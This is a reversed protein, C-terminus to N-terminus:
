PGVRRVTSVGDVTTTVRPDGMYELMSAGSVNAVLTEEARVLGYSAGSVNATVSRSRLAGATWRSAGSVAVTLEEATGSASGLTAGSFLIGLRPTDVGSIELRAAGSAEIDRVERVTVRCVVEHIRTLSTNPAFGLFLRGGRVESVVVPLVNDDTTVELSEVGAQQLVLRLPGSVTVASFGSVPRTQSAIVGSGVLMEHTTPNVVVQDDGCALTLALAAGVGMRFMLRKM